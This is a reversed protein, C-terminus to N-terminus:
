SRSAGSSFDQWGGGPFDFGDSSEAGFRVVYRQTCLKSVAGYRNIDRTSRPGHSQVHIKTRESFAFTCVNIIIMVSFSCYQAQRRTFYRSIGTPKYRSFFSILLCRHQISCRSLLLTPSPSYTPREFVIRCIRLHSSTLRQGYRYCRHVFIAMGTTRRHEVTTLNHKLM